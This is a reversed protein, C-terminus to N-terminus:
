DNRYVTTRLIGAILGSLITSTVTGIVFFVIAFATFIRVMEDTDKWLLPTAFAYVSMAIGPVFFGAIAGYFFAHGFGTRTKRIRTRSSLLAAILPPLWFSAVFLHEGVGFVSKNELWPNVRRVAVFQLKNGEKEVAGPEILAVREGGDYDIRFRLVRKKDVCDVLELLNSRFGWLFERHGSLVTTNYQKNEKLKGVDLKRNAQFTWVSNVTFTEEFFGGSATGPDVLQWSSDQFFHPIGDPNHPADRDVGNESQEFSYDLWFHLGVPIAAVAMTKLIMRILHRRAGIRTLLNDLDVQEDPFPRISLANRDFLPRLSPPLKAIMENTVGARMVLIPVVNIEPYQLLSEVEIRVLDDENELRLKGTAYDTVTFWQPGVLVLGVKTRALRREIIKRFDQGPEISEHDLFIDAARYRKRLEVYLRGLVAEADSRRYSIFIM